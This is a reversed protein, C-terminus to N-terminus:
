GPDGVLVFSAWFFPHAAGHRERRQRIIELQAGRLADTKTARGALRTYLETMLQQTAEDPVKYLSTILTEAGAHMLARRLGSVGEGTRVDGLGTECASLVVLETGALDLLSVEEATVWGDDPILPDATNDLAAGDTEDHTNAGALVIGSRLLPNEDASLQALRGATTMSESTSLLDKHPERQPDPLYFGHTALHLLRPAAIRKLVGELAEAGLFSQVPGYTDDMALLAAIQAAETETAPLDNWSLGRTAAALEGQWVGTTTRNIQALLTDSPIALEGGLNYDPAAFVVTGDAVAHDARLLDGCSSLYAFAYQEILYNGEPDVLAEFPLRTLEGDPALYIMDVGALHEALPAFVTHSLPEAILRYQEVLAAESALSLQQGADSVLERLEVVLADIEGADGLDKVALGGNPEGGRLVFAAYRAPLWRPEDGTVAFDYPLYRVFEVLAKGAGVRHALEAFDVETAGTGAAGIEENVVRLLVRELEIIEAALEARRRITVHTAPQLAIDALQQRRARLTTAQRAVDLNAAALREFERQRMLADFVATKRGLVATYAPELAVDKQVALTTFWHLPGSNRDLFNSMAEESSLLFFRQMSIRDMHDSSELLALAREEEGVAILVFGLNTLARTLDPHGQPYEIAPYLRNEVELARELYERAADYEGRSALLTGLNNLSVAVQRHGRPYDAPSYLRERIALAREHQDRAKEFEGLAALLVGLNNLSGALEPHGQPYTEPSYLRERIALAQEFYDRAIELEGQNQLFLATNNLTTALDPHGNPYKEAPYLLRDMALLRQYYVLAGASDGQEEIALALSNLSKALEPHGNRYESPPYLRERMTLALQFHHVADAYDGQAQLLAGFSSLATALASHGQPYEESPYLQQAMILARDFYQRSGAYDGLAQHLLGLNNLTPLVLAHGRPHEEAPYLRQQMTLAREFHPRAAAFDAQAFIMLGLNNLCLALRPHGAPCIDIPYLRRCMSLVQEYTQRANAIDGQAKLVAGLNNLSKALDPHPVPLLRRRIALVEAVLERAHAYDAHRNALLADRELGDARVLAARDPASLKAVVDVHRLAWRADIVRWHLRGHLKALIRIQEQQATRASEFDEIEIYREGLWRLTYAVEAHENGYIQREIALMAEAAAIAVELNGEALQAQAANWLLDRKSELEGQEDPPQAAGSVARRPQARCEGSCQMWCWAALLVTLTQVSRHVRM